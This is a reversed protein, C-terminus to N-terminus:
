LGMFVGMPLACVDHTCAHFVAAAHCRAFGAVCSLHVCMYLSLSCALRETYTNKYQMSTNEKARACCVHLRVGRAMRGCSTVHRGWRVKNITPVVGELRPCEFLKQFHRITAALVDTPPASALHAAAAGLAAQGALAQAEVAVLQRVSAVLEQAVCLCARVCVCLPTTLGYVCPM